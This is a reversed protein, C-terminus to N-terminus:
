TTKVLGMEALEEVFDTVDKLCTDADVQYHAQVSSALEGISSPTQLNLWLFQAVGELGFYKGTEVDLIITEDELETVKLHAPAIIQTDINIKNDGM